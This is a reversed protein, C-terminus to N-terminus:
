NKSINELYDWLPKNLESLEIYKSKNFVRYYIKEFTTLQLSKKFKPYERCYTSFMSINTEKSYEVNAIRDCLKVFTAFRTNKIGHYYKSNAREARNKGKENSVAYVVNASKEGIAKKVDNFSKRCDEIVDHNWCAAIITYVDENTLYQNYIEKDKSVFKLATNVVLILHVSYPQKDYLHNTFKHSNIAFKSARLLAETNVNDLKLNLLTQWIM